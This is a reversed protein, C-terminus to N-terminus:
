NLTSRGDVASENRVVVRLLDSLMGAAFQDLAIAQMNALGAAPNATGGGSCVTPAVCDPRLKLGAANTRLRTLVYVPKDRQEFHAKLGFRDALLARLMM